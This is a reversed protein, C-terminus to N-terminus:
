HLVNAGGDIEALAALLGHFESPEIEETSFIPGFELVNGTEGFSVETAMLRIFTATEGCKLAEQAFRLQDDLEKAADHQERHYRYSRARRCLVEFDEGPDHLRHELRSMRRSTEFVVDGLCMRMYEVLALASVLPSEEEDWLVMM